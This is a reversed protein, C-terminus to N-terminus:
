RWRASPASRTASVAASSSTSSTARKWRLHLTGVDRTLSGVHHSKIFSFSLSEEIFVYWNNVNLLTMGYMRCFERKQEESPYPNTKNDFLWQKLGATVERPLNARAKAASGTVSYPVSQRRQVVAPAPTTVTSPQASSDALSEATAVVASSTGPASVIMQPPVFGFSAMNPSDSTGRQQQQHQHQIQQLQQPAQQQFAVSSTSMAGSLSVHASNSAASALLTDEVQQNM